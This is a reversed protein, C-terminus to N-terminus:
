AVIFNKLEFETSAEASDFLLMAFDNEKIIKTIEFQVTAWEGVKCTDMWDNCVVPLHEFRLGVNITKKPVFNLFKIDFSISIKGAGKLIKFGLWQFPTPENNPSRIFHLIKDGNGYYNIHLQAKHSGYACCDTLKMEDLVFGNYEGVIFSGICGNFLQCDFGRVIFGTGISNYYNISKYYYFTFSPDIMRFKEIANQLNCLGVDHLIMVCNSELKAYIGFFDKFLQEVTHLGDIFALDYTSSRLGKHTDTPSFGKYLNVNLSNEEIIKRTIESGKINDSGEVEADIVDIPVNKFIHALTITSLGFANGIGYIARPTFVKSIYMMLEVDSKCIGGGTHLGEITRIGMVDSNSSERMNYGLTNYCKDVQSSINEVEDKSINITM